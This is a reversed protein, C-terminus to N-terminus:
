DGTRNFTLCRSAQRLLGASFGQADVKRILDAHRRLDPVGRPREDAIRRADGEPSWDNDLPLEIGLTLRGPKRIRDLASPQPEM